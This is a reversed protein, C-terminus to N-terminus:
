IKQTFITATLTQQRYSDDMIQPSSAQWIGPFTVRWGPFQPYAISPLAGFVASVLEDLRSGDTDDDLHTFVCISVDADVLIRGPLGNHGGKDSASVVAGETGRMEGSVDLQGRVQSPPLLSELSLQLSQILFDRIFPAPSNM